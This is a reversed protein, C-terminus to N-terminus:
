LLALQHTGRTWRVPQQAHGGASINLGVVCPALTYVGYSFCERVLPSYAWASTRLLRPMRRRGSSSPGHASDRHGGGRLLKCIGCGRRKWCCGGVDSGGADLSGGAYRLVSWGVLWVLGVLWGSGGVLRWLWIVSRLSFGAMLSLVTFCLELTTFFEAAACSVLANTHVLLGARM